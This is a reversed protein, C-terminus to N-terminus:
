LCIFIFLLCFFQGMCFVRLIDFCLLVSVYFLLLLTGSRRRTWCGLKAGAGGQGLGIILFLDNVIVCLIYFCLVFHRVDKNNLLWTKWWGERGGGQKSCRTVFLPSWLGSERKIECLNSVSVQIRCIFGSFLQWVERGMDGGRLTEPAGGM